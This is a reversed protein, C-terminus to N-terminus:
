MKVRRHVEVTIQTWEFEKFAVVKETKGQADITSLWVALLPGRDEATVVVQHFVRRVTTSCVTYGEDDVERVKVFDQKPAAQMLGLLVNAYEDFTIGHIALCNTFDSEKM